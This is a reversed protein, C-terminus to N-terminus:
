HLHENEARKRKQTHFLFVGEVTDISSIGL